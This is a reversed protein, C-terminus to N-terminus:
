NKVAVLVLGECWSTKKAIRWVHIGFTYKLVMDIVKEPMWDNM